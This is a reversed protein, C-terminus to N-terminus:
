LNGLPWTYLQCARTFCNKKWHSVESMANLPFNTLSLSVICNNQKKQGSQMEPYHPLVAPCFSVIVLNNCIRKMM